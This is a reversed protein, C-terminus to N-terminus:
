RFDQYFHNILETLCEAVVVFQPPRVEFKVSDQVPQVSGLTHPVITCLAQTGEALRVPKM